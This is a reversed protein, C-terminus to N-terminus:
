LADTFLNVETIISLKNQPEYKKGFLILHADVTHKMEMKVKIKLKGKNHCRYLRGHSFVPKSPYIGVRDLTQGQAKNITM